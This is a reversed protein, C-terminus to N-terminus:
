ISHASSETTKFNWFENLKSSLGGKGFKCKQSTEFNYNLFYLIQKRREILDKQGQKFLWLDITNYVGRNIGYREKCFEFFLHDTLHLTENKILLKIM